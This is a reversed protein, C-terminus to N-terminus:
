HHWSRGDDVCLCLCLCLLRLLSWARKRPVVAAGLQAWVLGDENASVGVTGLLIDAVAVLLSVEVEVAVNLVLTETEEVAGVRLAFRAAARNLGDVLVCGDFRTEEVIRVSRFIGVLLIGSGGGSGDNVRRRRWTGKEAATVSLLECGGGLLRLLLLDFWGLEVESAEEVGCAITRRDDNAAIEAGDAVVASRCAIGLGVRASGLVEGGDVVNEAVFVDANRRGSLALVLGVRRVCGDRGSGIGRGAVRGVLLEEPSADRAVGDVASDADVFEGTASAPGFICDM